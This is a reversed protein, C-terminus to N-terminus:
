IYQEGMQKEKGTMAQRNGAKESAEDHEWIVPEINNLRETQEKSSMMQKELLIKLHKLTIVQQEM